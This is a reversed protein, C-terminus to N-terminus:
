IFTYAYYILDLNSNMKGNKLKAALRRKRLQKRRESSSIQKSHLRDSRRPTNTEPEDVVAEMSDINLPGGRTILKNNLVPILM